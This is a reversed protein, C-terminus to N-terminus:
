SGRLRRARALFNIRYTENCRCNIIEGAPADPDGPYLIQVGDQTVYPDDFGVKQGDLYEHSDRTKKDMTADWEREIEEKVIAGTAIAQAYAERNGAHLAGMMETRAVTDGRLKLLRDSYRGLLTDLQKKTLEKEDAIANLIWKDYRRDRMKRELFQKMTALSTLENRANLVFEQQPLSLGLIGGTRRKTKSNIRGVLDLAVTTPNNGLIMGNQLVNRAVQKQEEVLRTIKTSSKEGLWLEAGPARADFRVLLPGVTPIRPMTTVAERGSAVFAAARAEQYAEFAAPEIRLAEVAREIDGAKIASVVQNLVVKDTIEAISALFADRIEPEYKDLLRRYSRPQAM